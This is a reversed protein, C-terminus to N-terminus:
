GDIIASSHVMNPIHNNGTAIGKVNGKWREQKHNMIALIFLVPRMESLVYLLGIYEISVTPHRATVSMISMAVMKMTTMRDNGVRGRTYFGSFGGLHDLEMFRYRTSCELFVCGMLVCMGVVRLTLSGGDDRRIRKMVLCIGGLM